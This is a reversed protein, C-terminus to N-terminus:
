ADCGGEVTQRTVLFHEGEKIPVEQDIGIEPKGPESECQVEANNAPVGVLSAIQGGTMQPRVGQAQDFKKRNVFIHLEQAQTPTQGTTVETATSM